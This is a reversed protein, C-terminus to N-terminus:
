EVQDDAVSLDCRQISFLGLDGANFRGALVNAQWNLIRNADEFGRGALTGMAAAVYDNM